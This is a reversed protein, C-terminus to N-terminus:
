SRHRAPCRVWATGRCTCGMRAVARRGHCFRGHDIKCPVVGAVGAPYEYDCVRGDPRIGHRRCLQCRHLARNREVVCLRPKRFAARKTPRQFSCALRALQFVDSFCFLPSNIPSHKLRQPADNMWTTAERYNAADAGVIPQKTPPHFTASVNKQTVGAANAWHSCVWPCSGLGWTAAQNLALPTAHGGPVLGAPGSEAATSDRTGPCDGSAVGAGAHRLSRLTCAGSHVPSRNIRSRLPSM